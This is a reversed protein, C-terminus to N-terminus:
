YIFVDIAQIKFLIIVVGKHKNYNKIKLSLSHMEHVLHM